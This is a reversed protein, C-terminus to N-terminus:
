GATAIKGFLTLTEAFTYLYPDLDKREGAFSRWGAGMIFFDGCILTTSDRKYTKIQEPYVTVARNVKSGNILGEENCVLVYLEKEGTKDYLYVPEILGGVLRQKEELTDEIEVVEDTGDAKCVLVRLKKKRVKPYAKLVEDMVEDAEYEDGICENESILEAEDGRVRLVGRGNYCLTWGDDVDKVIAFKGSVALKGDVSFTKLAVRLDECDRLLPAMGIREVYQLNGDIEIIDSVSPTHGTSGELRKFQTMAYVQEANECDTQGHYVEKYLGFNVGGFDHRQKEADEFMYNLYVPDGESNKISSDIQYIRVEM